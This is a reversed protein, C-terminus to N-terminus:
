PNWPFLPSNPTELSKLRGLGGRSLNLLQPNLAWPSKPKLPEPKPNLPKPIPELVKVPMRLSIARIHICIYIYIYIYIYICVSVYVYIYIYIIADSFRLFRKCFDRFKLGKPM